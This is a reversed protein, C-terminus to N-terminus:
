QRKITPLYNYYLLCILGFVHPSCIHHYYFTDIGIKVASYHTFISLTSWVKSFSTQFPLHHLGDRCIHCFHVGVSDRAAGLDRAIMIHWFELLCQWLPSGCSFGDGEGNARQGERMDTKGGGRKGPKQEDRTGERRGGDCREVSWVELRRMGWMERERNDGKRGM